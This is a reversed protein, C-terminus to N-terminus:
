KDEVDKKAGLAPSGIEELKPKDAPETPLAKPSDGEDVDAKFAPPAPPKSPSNLPRGKIESAAPTKIPPPTTPTASGNTSSGNPAPSEKNIVAMPRPFASPSSVY